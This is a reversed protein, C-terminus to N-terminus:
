HKINLIQTLYTKTDEVNDVAVCDIGMLKIPYDNGDPELRDGFFLVDENGLNRSELFMSMGYAKDMGVRTIDISTLGGIKAEMTEPLLPDIFNRLEKRKKLDPDWLQKEDTPAKQGLTSLTIQSGRDEIINGWEPNTKLNFKEVAIKVARISEEKEMETLEEFFVRNWNLKDDFELRQTGVVPCIILNKLSDSKPFQDVINKKFVEANTGSIIVILFKDLLKDLVQVMESDMATKSIVLTGDADFALVKKSKVLSQINIMKM